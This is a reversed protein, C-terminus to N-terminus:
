RFLSIFGVYPTLTEILHAVKVPDVALMAGIILDQANTLRGWKIAESWKIEKVNNEFKTICTRSRNLKNALEEQSLGNRERAARLVAGLDM